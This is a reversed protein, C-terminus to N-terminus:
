HSGTRPCSRKNARHIKQTAMDIPIECPDNRFCKNEKDIIYTGQFLSSSNSAAQLSALVPNGQISAIM